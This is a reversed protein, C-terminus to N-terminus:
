LVEPLMGAIRLENEEEKKYGALSKIRLRNEQTQQYAKTYL